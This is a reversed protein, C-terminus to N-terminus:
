RDHLHLDAGLVDLVGTVRAWTAQDLRGRELDSIYQRRVGAREALDAQSWGRASRRRRVSAGLAIPDSVPEPEPDPM